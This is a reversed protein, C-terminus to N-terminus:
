LVYLDIFVREWFDKSPRLTNTYSNNLVHLLVFLVFTGAVRPHVYYIILHQGICTCILGPTSLRITLINKFVTLMLFM